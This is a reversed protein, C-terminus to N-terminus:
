KEAEAKVPWPKGALTRCSNGPQIRRYAFIGTQTEDSDGAFLKLCLGGAGLISQKTRVSLKGTM